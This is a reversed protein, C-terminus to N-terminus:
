LHGHLLVTYRPPLGACVPGTAGCFLNVVMWSIFFYSFFFISCFCQKSNASFTGASHRDYVEEVLPVEPLPPRSRLPRLLLVHRHPRLLQDHRPLLGNWRSPHSLLLPNGNDWGMGRGGGGAGMRHMPYHVHVAMRGPAYAVGWWWTWPMFSHHFIHLFTIQGDKKRLVFFIQAACLPNLNSQFQSNRLGLPRARIGHRSVM